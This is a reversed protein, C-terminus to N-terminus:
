DYSHEGFGVFGWMEWGRIARDGEERNKSFHKFSDQQFTEDGNHIKPTNNGAMLKSKPGGVGCNVLAVSNGVCYCGGKLKALIASCCKEIYGLGKVLNPM